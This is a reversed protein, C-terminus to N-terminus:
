QPQHYCLKGHETVVGAITALLIFRSASNKLSKGILCKQILSTALFFYNHMLFVLVFLLTIGEIFIDVFNVHLNKEKRIIM